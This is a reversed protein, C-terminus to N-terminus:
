FTKVNCGMARVQPPGPKQGKLIQNIAREFYRDTVSGEAQPNNDFAGRYAIEFGNEGNTILIVEPIKTIKFYKTWEQEPDLLYPVSIGSEQMFTKLTEPTQNEEKSPNILHFAFGQSSYESILFKLRNAYMDAFPCEMSHSILILGKNIPIEGLTIVKGSIVDTTSLDEIRQSFGQFTISLFLLIILITEKM